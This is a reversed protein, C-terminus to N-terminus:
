WRYLRAAILGRGERARLVLKAPAPAPYPNKWCTTQDNGAVGIVKDSHVSLVAMEGVPPMSVILTVDYVPVSGHAVIAYCTKPDLQVPLQLEQQEEFRGNAPMGVPSFGKARGSAVASLVKAAADTDEPMPTAPGSAPGAPASAEDSPESAPPAPEAPAAVPQPKSGACAALAAAVAILTRM